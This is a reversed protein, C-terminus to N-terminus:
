EVLELTKIFIEDQHRYGGKWCYNSVKNFYHYDIKLEKEKKCFKIMREIDKDEQKVLEEAYHVAKNIDKFVKGQLYSAELDGKYVGYIIM